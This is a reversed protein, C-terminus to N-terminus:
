RKLADILDRNWARLGGDLVRAMLGMEQALRAALLSREGTACYFVYIDGEAFRRQHEPSEPDILFELGGRPAHLAGDIMAEAAIEAQDRIDVLVLVARADPDDLLGRLDHPTLKQVMRGAAAIMELYGKAM